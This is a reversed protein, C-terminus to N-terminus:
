LDESKKRERFTTGDSVEKIGRREKREAKEM